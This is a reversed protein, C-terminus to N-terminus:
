DKRQKSESQIIIRGQNQSNHYSQVKLVPHQSKDVLPQNLVRLKWTTMSDEALMESVRYGFRGEPFYCKNYYWMGGSKFSNSPNWICDKAECVQRAYAEDSPNDYETDLLSRFPTWPRSQSTYLSYLITCLPTHEQIM